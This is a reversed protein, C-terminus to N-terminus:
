LGLKALTETVQKCCDIPDTVSHGVTGPHIFIEYDNGGPLTKDGFFHIAEYKPDLYKLCFTKDWGSPFIDISIQGGISFKLLHEAAPFRQELAKVFDQRVPFKNEYEVFSMREEQTCSRGIPCVNMMGNRLEIFTGRKLPLDIESMYRLCFNTLDQLRKEGLEKTISAKPLEKVGEFGMLGNEAFIFSFLKLLENDEGLPLQEFIKGLDSGGVVAIPVRRSLDRMFQLMEDTIKQRPMTLTGDVDFLFITPAKTQIATINQESQETTTSNNDGNIIAEPM